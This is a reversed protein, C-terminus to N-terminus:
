TLYVTQTFRLGYYLWEDHYNNIINDTLIIGLQKKIRLVLLLKQIVYQFSIFMKIAVQTSSNYLQQILVNIGVQKVLYLVINDALFLEM